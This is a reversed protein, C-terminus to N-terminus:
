ADASGEEVWNAITQRCVGALLAAYSMTMHGNRVEEVWRKREDEGHQRRRYPFRGRDDCAVGNLYTKSYGLRSAIEGIPTHGRWLREFEAIEESTM